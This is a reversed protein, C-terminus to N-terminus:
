EGNEEEMDQAEREREMEEDFDREEKLEAIRGTPDDPTCVRCGKFLKQIEERNDPESQRDKPNKHRSM